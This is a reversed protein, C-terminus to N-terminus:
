DNGAGGLLTDDGGGGDLIVRGRTFASADFTNDGSYGILYAEDIDTLTDTGLGTLQTDTLTFNADGVARVQDTASARGILIDDGGQGELMVLSGAFGAADLTNAGPGGILHAEEIGDLTDTGLGVLQTATLTFDADGRGAVRDVGAGGILTDDGVGGDLWDDGSGGM